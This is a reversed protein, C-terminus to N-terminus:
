KEKLEMRAGTEGAALRQRHLAVVPDDGLCALLTHARAPDCGLAAYAARYRDLWDPAAAANLTAVAIADRKGKLVIDGIPQVPLPADLHAEAERLCVGSVAIRTGFAKNAGELRAATNMADGLATYDFRLRGGFNGVTAEGSHVGIRTTGLRADTREARFREAFADIAMACRVAHAAHAPDHGPVGFLAVVADGIYKDVVGRHAMVIASVGDLYDNLLRGLAEPAMAESMGTFGELDTFLFSMERREGGLRLGSPDRVLEEVLQPALYHAFASRIFRRERHALLADLGMTAGAGLLLALLAATVPLVAGGLSALGIAGALWGGALVILAPLKLLWHWRAMAVLAALVALALVAAWRAPAPWEPVLRNDLLQAVLHAHIAVGATAPGGLVASLPTAHRDQQPLDAGVLVIRDKFWGALVAPNAAMLPLILAPTTQFPPSGDTGPLRWDVTWTEGAGDPGDRGALAAALSPTDTGALGRSHRRVMGDPDTTLNAFGFRGGSEAGFTRLWATQPATMGSRADAWALVVPGPFAKIAAALRADKAPETPQDLLIDLGVARAGAAGLLRVVDALLGRDVPSRYPLRAMTAEDVAVISLRSDQGAAPSAMAIRIRDAIGTELGHLPGVWRVAALALAAAVAAIALM